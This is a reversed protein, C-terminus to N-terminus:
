GAALWRRANFIGKACWRAQMLDIFFDTSVRWVSHYELAPNRLTCGKICQSGFVIGRIQYGSADKPQPPQLRADVGPRADIRMVAVNIDVAGVM